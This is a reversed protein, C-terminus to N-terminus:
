GWLTLTATNKSFEYRLGQIRLLVGASLGFRNIKLTLCKGLAISNQRVFDIPVPVDFSNRKVKHLALLRNAENTAATSDVLLTEFELQKALLFKNLISADTSVIFLSPLALVARSAATVSGALDTTQITYNKKYTTKVTYCPVDLEKLPRRETSVGAYVEDLTVLSTGTPVEWVDAVFKGDVDFGFYAGVSRAIQDMVELYSETDSIHIGVISSNKTDLASIATNDIDGSPIGALLALSKLIQAVTRNSAAAGQTADCTVIGAPLGGLRILGEALCTIFQGATPSAAHLATVNAHDGSNTLAVGRDYVANVSQIASNSIQYTLKSTNVLVPAINFVQGYLLPKLKGKIDTANGEIGNPLSNNGLYYNTLVQKEFVYQKDKIRIRLERRNAFINYVVGTLLKVFGSPYAAGREGEYVVIARGDFGYNLWADFQGNANSLVIEGTELSTSGVIEGDSFVSVGISGADKLCPNFATNAPTDSAKTAYGADSLYFTQLTGSADIAGTIEVVIM